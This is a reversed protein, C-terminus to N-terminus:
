KEITLIQSMNETRASSMHSSSPIKDWPNCALRGDWYQPLYYLSSASSARNGGLERELHKYNNGNPHKTQGGTEMQFQRSRSANAHVNITNTEFGWSRVVSGDKRIM